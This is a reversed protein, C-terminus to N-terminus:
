YELTFQTAAKCPSDSMRTTRSFSMSDSASLPGLNSRKHDDRVAPRVADFVFDQSMASAARLQVLGPM